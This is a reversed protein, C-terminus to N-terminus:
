GARHYYIKGERELGQVKGVSEMYLIRTLTMLFEASHRMSMKEFGYVAQALEGATNGSDTIADLIQQMRQEHGVRLEHIRAPVDQIMSGHGPLGISVPLKAIKELSEFYVAMPNGDQENWIPILPSIGNLVHDGILMAGNSKNLFCFHDPSHGPTWIAEFLHNGLRIEQQDELLEDPEFYDADLQELMTKESVSPGGHKAFFPYMNTGNGEYAQLRAHFKQMEEFGQKAIVLPAQYTERLWKALGIHDTHSHTLLIKEVKTGEPLAEQWIGIAQEAYSGTDVITVGNKGEIVYCNVQRMGYPFQVSLLHIGETVQVLM